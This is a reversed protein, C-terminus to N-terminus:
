SSKLTLDSNDVFCVVIYSKDLLRSSGGGGEEGRGRGGGGWGVGGGWGLSLFGPHFGGPREFVPNLYVSKVM